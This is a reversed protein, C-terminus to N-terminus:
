DDIDKLYVGITEILEVPIDSRSDLDYGYEDGKFYEVANGFVEYLGSKLM